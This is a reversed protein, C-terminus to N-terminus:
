AVVLRERIGALTPNVVFEGNMYIPKLEGSSTALESPKLPQEQALVYDDGVKNVVLFGKASKKLKDGTAPDKYLEVLEGEVNIATAKVAMGFTDRSNVQYTYSGIGLVVNTSAFGKKALRRMIEETRQVTISDGYILGIRENLLKYGLETTTGGFIHWLVEIAGQEEADLDRETIEYGMRYHGPRIVTSHIGREELFKYATRLEDVVDLNDSGIPFRVDDRARLLQTMGVFEQASYGKSTLEEDIEEWTRMAQGSLKTALFTKGTTDEFYIKAPRENLMLAEADPQTFVEVGCIVEVPDGSDPRVVLKALGNEDPLRSLITEKLVPLVKTLVGWFDFSDCVLSVIGKPVKRTILEEVFERECELRLKAFPISQHAVGEERYARIKHRLRNLINATAVAHETAPVSAAVWEKEVNANYLYEVYDIASVTDTGIFCALHGANSRMGDEIGSMGRYAFDHGQLAVFGEDAGTQRAAYTLVRKYEYAITANTISKWTMNSLATELYNVIWYFENGEDVKEGLSNYVVFLPIGINVRSGEEIALVTIPLHGIDHLRGMADIDVRGKGLYNEVRRRYREVVQAKPKKFFTKDWLHVLERLAGTIGFQVVKGDWFKSISVSRRFIKDSRPTLNNYAFRTGEPYMPGHGLKYGDVLHPAFLLDELNLAQSM